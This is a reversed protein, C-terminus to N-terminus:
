SRGELNPGLPCAKRGSVTRAPGPFKMAAMTMDTRGAVLLSFGGIIHMSEFLFCRVYRIYVLCFTPKTPCSAAHLNKLTSGILSGEWGPSSMVKM